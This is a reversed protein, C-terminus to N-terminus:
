ARCRPRRAARGRASASRCSCARSDPARPGAGSGRPPHPGRAAPPRRGARALRAPDGYVVPRLEGGPGEIGPRVPIVDLEVETSGPFGPVVAHDLGEVARESALTERLMPKGRDGLGLLNEVVPPRVVIGLPGMAAQGIARRGFMVSSPREDRAGVSQKGIRGRPGLDPPGAGTACTANRTTRFVPLLGNARCAARRM